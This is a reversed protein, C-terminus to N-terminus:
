NNQNNQQMKMLTGAAEMMTSVKYGKPFALYNKPATQNTKFKKLLIQLQGNADTMKVPYGYKSDKEQDM